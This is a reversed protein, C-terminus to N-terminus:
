CKYFAHKNKAAKNEKSHLELWTYRLQQIGKYNYHFLGYM